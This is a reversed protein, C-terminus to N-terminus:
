QQYYPITQPGEPLICARAGTGHRGLAEGLAISVDACPLALCSRVAADSLYSNKLYVTAKQLIKAYLLL